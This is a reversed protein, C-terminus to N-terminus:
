DEYALVSMASYEEHVQEELQSGATLSSVQRWLDRRSGSSTGIHWPEWEGGLRWCGHRSPRRKWYLTCVLVPSSLSQVDSAHTNGARHGAVSAPMVSQCRKVRTCNAKTKVVMLPCKATVTSLACPAM